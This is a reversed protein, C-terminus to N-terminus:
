PRFNAATATTACATHPMPRRNQLSIKLTIRQAAVAKTSSRHAPAYLWSPTRAPPAIQRSEPTPPPMPVPVVGVPTSYESQAGAPADLAFGQSPEGDTGPFVIGRDPAGNAAQRASDLIAARAGQLQEKLQFNERQLRDIADIMTTRDEQNDMPQGPLTRAFDRICAEIRQLALKAQETNPRLERYRRYHYISAIPDKVQQQYLIAAELHSEAAAGGRQDILKLFTALAEQERGMRLLEKGRRYDPDEVEAAYPMATQPGCGTHLFPASALVSVLLVSSLRSRM